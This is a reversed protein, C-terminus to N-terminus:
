YMWLKNSETQDHCDVYEGRKQFEIVHVRYVARGGRLVRPLIKFLQQLKAKFVRVTIDPRDAATQGKELQELIEKWKPNTTFTIFYTPRGHKKVIALSDAVMKQQHRPSGLFESSLYVRGCKAGGDGSITDDSLYTLLAKKPTVSQQLKRLYELRDCEIASFFDVIFENLLGGLSHLVKHRLLIQRYFQLMTLKNTKGYEIDWGPQGTPNILVYQLAFYLGSKTSIFVPENDTKRWCVVVRSQIPENPDVVILAAVEHATSVSLDLRANVANWESLLRFKGWLVSHEILIQKLSTVIEPQIQQELSSSIGDYLFWRLPGTTCNGPLMRHYARGHLIVNSPGGAVSKFGTTAGIASFAFLNNYKRSHQQLETNTAVLESLEAPIVPLTILFDPKDSSGCCSSQSECSLRM